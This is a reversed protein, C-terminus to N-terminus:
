VSYICLINISLPANISLLPRQNVPPRPLPPPPPPGRESTGSETGAQPAKELIFLHLNKCPFLGLRQTPRLPALPAGEAGPPSQAWLWQWGGLVRRTMPSPHSLM